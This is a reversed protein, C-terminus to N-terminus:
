RNAEAELTNTVSHDMSVHKSLDLEDEPFSIWKLSTKPIISSIISLLSKGHNMNKVLEFLYITPMESQGLKRNIGIGIGLEALEVQNKFVIHFIEQNLNSNGCTSVLVELYKFHVEVMRSALSGSSSDGAASSNKFKLPGASSNATENKKLLPTLSVTQTIPQKQSNSAYSINEHSIHNSDLISTGRCISNTALFPIDNLSEM